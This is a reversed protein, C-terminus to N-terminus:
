DERVPTQEVTGRRKMKGWNSKSMPEEVYQLGCVCFRKGSPFVHVDGLVPDKRCESGM